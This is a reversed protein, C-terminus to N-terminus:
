EEYRTKTQVWRDYFVECDCEHPGAGPRQYCHGKQAIVSEFESQIIMLEEMLRSQKDKVVSSTTSQDTAM